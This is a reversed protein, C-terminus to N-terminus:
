SFFSFVPMFPESKRRHNASHAASKRGVYSSKDFFDADRRLGPGM